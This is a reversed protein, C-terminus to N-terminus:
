DKINLEFIRKNDRISIKLLACESPLFNRIKEPWEMICYCGSYLYDELGMDLAESSDEIRYFDFHYISGYEPSYYENVLSFTPSNVKDVVGMERCLEKVFTTKGSGMEGEIAILRSDIANLLWKAIEPLAKISSAEKM